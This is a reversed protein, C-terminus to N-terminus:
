KNNFLFFTSVASEFKCNTSGKRKLSAYITIQQVYLFYNQLLAGKQFVCEIRCRNSTLIKNNSNLNFNIIVIQYLIM